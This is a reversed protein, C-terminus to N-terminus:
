RVMDMEEGGGPDDTAPFGSGSAFVSRYVSPSPWCVIASPLLAAADEVAMSGFCVVIVM